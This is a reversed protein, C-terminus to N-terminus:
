SKPMAGSIYDMLYKNETKVDTMLAKVIDGISVIGVLVKNKVVPIHRVRNNTMITEVYELEDEPEAVLVKTTMAEAVEIKLFTDPKSYAKKIIDRESLIGVIKAESDLVILVGVNNIVLLRLADALTKQSGITIVEPGKAKLIDKVKM